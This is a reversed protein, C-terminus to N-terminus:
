QVPTLKKIIYQIDKEFLDLHYNYQTKFCIKRYIEELSIVKNVLILRCVKDVFEPSLAGLKYFDICLIEDDKLYQIKKFLIEVFNKESVPEYLEKNSKIEEDTRNFCVPSFDNAINFFVKKMKELIPKQEPFFYYTPKM